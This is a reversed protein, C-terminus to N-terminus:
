PVNSQTLHFEPEIIRTMQKEPITQALRLVRM